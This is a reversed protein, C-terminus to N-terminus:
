RNGRNWPALIEEIEKVLREATQGINILAWTRKSKDNSHAAPELTNLTKICTTVTTDPPPESLLKSM